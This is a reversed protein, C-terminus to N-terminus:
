SYGVSPRIQQNARCQAARFRAILGFNVAASSAIERKDAHGRWGEYEPQRAAGLPSPKRSHGM